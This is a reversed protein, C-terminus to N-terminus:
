QKLGILYVDGRDAAGNTIVNLTEGKTFTRQAEVISSSRTTGDDTAMSIANTIATTSRRVTVSGGGSTARGQAVVEVLKMDVSVEFDQGSSADAQIRVEQCVLGLDDTEKLKGGANVLLNAPSAQDYKDAQSQTLKSSM